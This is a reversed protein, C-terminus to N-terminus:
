LIRVYNSFSNSFEFMIRVTTNSILGIVPGIVVHVNATFLPDCDAPLKSSKDDDSSLLEELKEM